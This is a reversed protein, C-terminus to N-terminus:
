SPAAVGWRTNWRDVAEFVPRLAKGRETLRYLATRGRRIRVVLGAEILERLRQALLRHSLGPVAAKIDSFREAGSMLARLIAATWRRGLLELTQQFYPCYPSFEAMSM